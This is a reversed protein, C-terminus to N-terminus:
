GRGRKPKLLGKVEPLDEIRTARGLLPADLTNSPPRYFTQPKEKPVNHSLQRASSQAPSSSGPLPKRIFGAPLESPGGFAKGGYITANDARRKQDEFEKQKSWYSFGGLIASRMFTGGVSPSFLSNIFRGGLSGGGVPPTTTGPGAGQQKLAAAQSAASFIGPAHLGPDFVSKAANAAGVPTGAAPAAGAPTFMGGVASTITGFGTALTSGVANFFSGLTSSGSQQAASMLNGFGSYGSSGVGVAFIALGTIFATRVWKNEFARGVSKGISKGFKFIKKTAKGIFSM